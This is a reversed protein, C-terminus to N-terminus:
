WSIGSFAMRIGAYGKGGIYDWYNDPNSSISAKQYIWIGGDLPNDGRSAAVMEFLKNIDTSMITGGTNFAVKEILDKIYIKGISSNNLARAVSGKLTNVENFNLRRLPEGSRTIKTDDDTLCRLIFM